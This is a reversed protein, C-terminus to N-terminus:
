GVDVEFRTGRVEIQGDPLDVFFRESPRQKRVQVVIAGSDGAATYRDCRAQGIFGVKGVGPYDVFIRADIDRVTSETDGTTRGRKVVRMGRAPDSIKIPDSAGAIGVFM